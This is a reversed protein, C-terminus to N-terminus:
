SPGAPAIAGPFRSGDSGSGTIECPQKPDDQLKDDIVLTNHSRNNLRFYSWRKGGFYGPMNYNDSGLDVCWRVGRAEYVFSGADLHGHSAAGTGGKIALWADDRSWGTRLFAVPQEGGFLAATRLAPADSAPAAPLWLLHLASLRGAASREPDKM